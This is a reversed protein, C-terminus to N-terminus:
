TRRSGGPSGVTSSPASTTTIVRRSAKATSRSELSAGWLARRCPSHPARPIRASQRRRGRRLSSVTCVGRRRSATRQRCGSSGTATAITGSTTRSYPRPSLIQVEPGRSRETIAAMQGARAVYYATRRALRLAQCIVTRKGTRPHKYALELMVAEGRRGLRNTRCLWWDRHRRARAEAQGQAM